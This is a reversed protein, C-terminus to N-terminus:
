LVVRRIGAKEHKIERIKKLLQLEEINLGEYDKILELNRM